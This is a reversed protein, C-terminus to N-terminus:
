GVMYKMKIAEVTARDDMTVGSMNFEDNLYFLVILKADQEAIKNRKIMFYFTSIFNSFNISDLPIEFFWGQVAAYRINDSNQLLYGYFQRFYKGRGERSAMIIKGYQKFCYQKAIEFTYNSYIYGLLSMEFPNKRLYSMLRNHREYNFTLETAAKEVLDYNFRNRHLLEDKDQESLESVLGYNRSKKTNLPLGRKGFGDQLREFLREAITSDESFVIIDDVYRFIHVIDGIKDGELIDKIVKDLYIETLIRAYAPGQPVGIRAGQNIEKMLVDNYACLYEFANRSEKTLSEKFNNYIVLIDINDYCHKLDLYIVHNHGMFPVELYTKIQDIFRRWSSFWPYFLNTAELYSVKYSYSAITHKMERCLRLALTTTVLRDFAGLSVLNRIRGNEEYRQYVKYDLPKFLEVAITNENRNSKGFDTKSGVVYDVYDKIKEAEINKIKSIKNYLAVSVVEDNQWLYNREKVVINQPNLLGDNENKKRLHEKLAVDFHLREALYDVGTMNPQIETEMELNYLGYLYAFTAPYYRNKLLKINKETTKLDYNPYGSFLTKLLEECSEFCSFTGLLVLWDYAEAQGREMRSFINRYVTTESLIRVIQELTADINRILTYQNYINHKEEDEDAIGLKACLGDKSEMKYSKLITLQSNYFAETELFAKEDVDAAVGLFLELPTASDRYIGDEKPYTLRQKEFFFSRSGIKHYSLPFKVQKGVKTYKNSGTAPFKDLGYQGREFAEQLEPVEYLIKNIISFGLNKKILKNFIIWIHIGRRGSFELLYQVKCRDLYDTVPLICNKYLGELNVSSNKKCDFDLCIWRIADSRYAQQYCGLSGRYSIMAQLIAPTLPLYKTYYRGDDGQVAVAHNNVVFLNYEFNSIASIIEKRM